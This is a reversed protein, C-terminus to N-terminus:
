ASAPARPSRANGSPRPTARASGPSPGCGRPSTRGRLGALPRHLDPPSRRALDGLARDDVRGAVDGLRPGARLHRPPHRAARGAREAARRDVVRPDPAREAEDEEDPEAVPPPREREAVEVQEEQERRRRREPVEVVAVDERRHREEIRQEDPHHQAPHPDADAVAARRARRAPRDPHQEGRRDEEGAEPDPEVDLARVDDVDAVRAHDAGLPDDVPVAGHPFKGTSSM